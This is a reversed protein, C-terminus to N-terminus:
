KKQPLKQGIALYVAHPQSPVRKYPIGLAIAAAIFAGHEMDVPGFFRAADHKLQMSTAFDNPKQVRDCQQLWDCAYEFDKERTKLEDRLKGFNSPERGAGIGLGHVCLEPNEDIVQLFDCMVKETLTQDM